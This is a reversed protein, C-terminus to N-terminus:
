RRTKIRDLKQHLSRIKEKDKLRTDPNIEGFFNPMGFISKCENHFISM